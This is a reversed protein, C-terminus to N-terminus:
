LNQRILLYKRKTRITENKDKEQLKLQSSDEHCIFTILLQSPQYLTEGRAWRKDKAWKHITDAFPLCLEEEITSPENLNM